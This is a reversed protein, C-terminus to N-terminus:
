HWQGLEPPTLKRFYPNACNTVGSIGFELEKAAIKEFLEPGLLENVSALPFKVKCCEAPFLTVDSLTAKFLNDICSQYYYHLDCPGLLASREGCSDCEHEETRPVVEIPGTTKPFESELIGNLVDVRIVTNCCKPPGWGSVTSAAISLQMVLCEQSYHHGCPAELDGQSKCMKCKTHPPSYAQAESENPSRLNMM